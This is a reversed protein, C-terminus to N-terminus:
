SLTTITMGAPIDDWFKITSSVDGDEGLETYSAQPDSKEGKKCLIGDLWVGLSSGVIYDPVTLITEAPIKTYYVQDHRTGQLGGSQTARISQISVKWDETFADYYFSYLGFARDLVYYNTSGLITHGNGDVRPANKGFNGNCDIFTIHDGAAPDAPLKIGYVKPDPEDVEPDGTKIFVTDGPKVETEGPEEISTTGQQGIYDTYLLESKEADPEHNLDAYFRGGVDVCWNKQSPWYILRVSAGRQNLVLSAQRKDITHDVSVITIEKGPVQCQWGIDFVEVKSGARLNTRPLQIVIPGGSSDVFLTQGESAVYNNYIITPKGVGAIAAAFDPHANPDNNHDEIEQAQTYKFVFLDMLNLNQINVVIRFKISGAPDYSATGDIGCLGLLFETGDTTEAMLYIERIYMMDASVGPPITCLFEISESTQVIRGSIPAEYWTEFMDMTTRSATIEGIIDSVCFKTPYIHWGGNNAMRICNALGESTLLGKLVSPSVTTEAM